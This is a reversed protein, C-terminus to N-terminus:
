HLLVLRATRNWGRTNLRVFYVGSPVPRGDDGRGDWLATTRGAPLVGRVLTRVRRGQIDLVTVSAHASAPLDV